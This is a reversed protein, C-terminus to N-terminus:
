ITDISNEDDDTIIFDTDKLEKLKEEVLKEQELYWNEFEILQEYMSKEM